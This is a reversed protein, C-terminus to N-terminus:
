MGYRFVFEFASNQGVVVKDELAAMRRRRSILQMSGMTLSLFCLDVAQIGSCNKNPCEHCQDDTM